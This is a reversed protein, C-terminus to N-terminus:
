SSQRPRLMSLVSWALTSERCNDLSFGRLGRHLPSLGFLLLWPVRTMTLHSLAGLLASANFMIVIVRTDTSHLFTM